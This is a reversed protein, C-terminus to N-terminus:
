FGFSAGIGLFLLKAKTSLLINREESLNNFSMTSVRNIYIPEIWDLSLVIDYKDNKVLLTGIGISLTVYNNTTGKLTFSQSSYQNNEIYPFRGQVDAFQFTKYGGMVRLSYFHRSYIIGINAGYITLVTPNIQYNSIGFFNHNSNNRDVLESFTFNAGVSIDSTIKHSYEIVKIRFGEYDGGGIDFGPNLVKLNNSNDDKNEELIFQKSRIEKNNKLINLGKFTQIRGSSFIIKELTHSPIVNTTNENKFKYKVEDVGVEIIIANVKKGDSFVLTDLSESQGFGIM